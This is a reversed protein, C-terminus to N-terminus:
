RFHMGLSTFLHREIDLLEQLLKGSEDGRETSTVGFMEVQLV